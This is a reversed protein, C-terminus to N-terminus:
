KLLAKFQFREFARFCADQIAVPITDRANINQLLDTFNEYDFIRFFMKSSYLWDFYTTFRSTDTVVKESEDSTSKSYNYIFDVESSVATRLQVRAMAIYDLQNVNADIGLSLKGDCLGKRDVSSSTISLLESLPYHQETGDSILVLPEEKVTLFGQKVDGNDFCIQQDFRSRLESVDGWDLTVIGFEDSEFELKEDYM